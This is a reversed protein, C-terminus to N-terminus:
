TRAEKKTEESTYISEFVHLMFGNMRMRTLCGADFMEEVYRSMRIKEFTPTEMVTKWHLVRVHSFM